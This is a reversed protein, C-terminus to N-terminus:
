RGFMKGLVLFYTITTILLMKYLILKMRVLFEINDDGVIKINEKASEIKSQGEKFLINGLPNIVDLLDGVAVLISPYHEILLGIGDGTVENSKILLINLGKVVDSVTTSLLLSAAGDINIKTGGQNM